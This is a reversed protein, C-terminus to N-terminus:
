IEEAYKCIAQKMDQGIAEWDSRMAELDDKIFSSPLIEIDEIEEIRLKPPSYESYLMLPGALGHWFGEMFTQHRTKSSHITM